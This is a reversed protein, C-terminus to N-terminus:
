QKGRKLTTMSSKPTSKMSRQTEQNSNKPPKPQVTSFFTIEPHTTKEEARSMGVNNRQGNLVTTAELIKHACFGATPQPNLQKYARQFQKDYLSGVQGSLEYDNETNAPFRTSLLISSSSLPGSLVRGKPLCFAFASCKKDVAFEELM